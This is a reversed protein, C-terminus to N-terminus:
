IHLSIIYWKYKSDMRISSLALLLTITQVSLWTYWWDGIRENMKGNTYVESAWYHCTIIVEFLDVYYYLLKNIQQLKSLVSFNINILQRYNYM